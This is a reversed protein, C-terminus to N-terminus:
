KCVKFFILWVYRSAASGIKPNFQKCYCFYSQMKSFSWLSESAVSGKMMEKMPDKGTLIVYYKEFEKRFLQCLFFM